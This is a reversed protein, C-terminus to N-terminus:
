RPKPTVAAWDEVALEPVKLFDVLNRSLVTLNRSLAITAIRLDMTGIRVRRKRLSEFIRAADDDFSLVQMTAFDTLIGEFMEYARVVGQMTRARNLYTQWGVVQEHFSIISVSFADPAYEAMRQVIRDFEPLTQRQIIALHDSDLLFL